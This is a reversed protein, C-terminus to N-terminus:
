QQEGRTDQTATTDHTATTDQTPTTDRTARRAQEVVDSHADEVADQLAALASEAPGELVVVAAAMPGDHTLSLHATWRDGFQERVAGAVAGSLRISPRGHADSVVEVESLDWAPLAPARGFRSASWAKVFAEKAAYRAALRRVRSPDGSGVEAREGASFAHLEFRTGPAALQDAFGAVDVLDIGVGLVSM